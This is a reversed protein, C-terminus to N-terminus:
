GMVSLSVDEIGIGVRNSCGNGTGKRFMVINGQREAEFLPTHKAIGIIFVTDDGGDVFCLCVAENVLADDCAPHNRLYLIGKFGDMFSNSFDDYRVGFVNVTGTACRNFPSPTLYNKM